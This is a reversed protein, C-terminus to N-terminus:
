AEANIVKKVSNGGKKIAKAKRLVFYPFWYGISRGSSNLVFGHGLNDSSVQFVKGVCADMDEVWSNQWEQEFDIAKRIVKVWDGAKIGCKKHERLYGSVTRTKM